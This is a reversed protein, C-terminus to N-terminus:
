EGSNPEDTIVDNVTINVETVRFGTLGEVKEIVSKRLANSVKPVSKGYDLAVTLDAAVEKEGVEVAVGRSDGDGGIPTRELLGGVARSASGGMHVGEVERAALGALRSFVTDEIRLSGQKESM